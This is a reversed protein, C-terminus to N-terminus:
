FLLLAKGLFLSAPDVPAGPFFSHLSPVTSVYTMVQKM